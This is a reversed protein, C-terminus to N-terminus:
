GQQKASCVLSKIARPLTMNDWQKKTKIDRRIQRQAMEAALREKNAACTEADLCLRVSSAGDYFRLADFPVRWIRSDTEPITTHCTNCKVTEMQDGEPTERKTQPNDKM